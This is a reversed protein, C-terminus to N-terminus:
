KETCLVHCIYDFYTSVYGYCTMLWDMQSMRYQLIQVSVVIDLWDPHHLKSRHPLIITLSPHTQPLPLVFTYDAHFFLNSLAHVQPKRMIIDAEIRIGSAPFDM